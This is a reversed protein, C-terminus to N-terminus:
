SQGGEGIMGALTRGARIFDGELAQLRDRLEQPWSLELASEAQEILASELDAAHTLVAARDDGSLLFRAREALNEVTQRDPDLTDPLYGSARIIEELERCRRGRAEAMRALFGAEADYGKKEMVETSIRYHEVAKRCVHMLDNLRIEKEDRLLKTM